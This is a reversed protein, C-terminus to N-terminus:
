FNSSLCEEYLDLYQGATKAWDFKAARTMIATKLDVAQYELMGKLFTDQMHKPEFNAFYWAAEGGIEPLSTHTSLFVPKGFHMAEIVPLGFGEAISPFIFAECNEYYWAKDADSILGTFIVRNACNYKAAEELVREQYATIKGAIILEYDNHELLAPLVHFNKKASISGITFLFKRAPKYAPQHGQPVILKDAGNYIVRIKEAAEPYYQKVDNAVFESITVIRDCAAIYGGLRDIYKKYRRPSRNKEHVPNMDHITLIKKANVRRPNLKCYQNTFHVLDFKNYAPFFAKHLLLKTIGNKLGKFAYIAKPHLYGWINFRNNGQKLLEGGLSREFFFLGSTARKLSDFTILITPKM